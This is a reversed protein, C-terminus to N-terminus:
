ELAIEKSSERLETKFQLWDKILKRFDESDGITQFLFDRNTLSPFNKKGLYDPYSSWRYNELFKLVEQIKTKNLGKEKWKPIILSVPNSHIYVFIIKLQEDDKIHVIKYRGQFLHGNRKYKQNYYLGYGAGLKRMFKSIGEDKNQRLLLHIHNPMLCFALIEVLTDRKKRRERIARSRKEHQNYYKRYDWLVPNEDNFEFLDHIMRLYDKENRFLKLNEIARLVVHYIEGNVILPRKSPM